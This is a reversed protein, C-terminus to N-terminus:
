GCGGFGIMGSLHNMVEIDESRGDAINELMATAKYTLELLTRLCHQFSHASQIYGTAFLNVDM